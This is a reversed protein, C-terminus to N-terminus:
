TLIEMTVIDKYTFIVTFIEFNKVCFAKEELNVCQFRTIVLIKILM